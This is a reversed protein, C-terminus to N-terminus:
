KLTIKEFNEHKFFNEGWKQGLKQGLDGNVMKWFQYWTM